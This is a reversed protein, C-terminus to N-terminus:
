INFIYFSIIIEIYDVICIIECQSKAHKDTVDNLIDLKKLNKLFLYLIIKQKFSLIV